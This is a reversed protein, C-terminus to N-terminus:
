FLYWCSWLGCVHPCGRSVEILYADDFGTEPTVITSDTTFESLDASYVRQIKEPVAALPTFAALTGDPHYHEQYFEPVYVGPLDRAAELLFQRRDAAPDFRAFFPPLLTEAEGLLFCDIFAAIPEPNLFCSVGGALVLPLPLSAGRCTAPLPLGAKRLVTLVNAYDNEFSISFALADFERLPRGSELSVLSAADNEGDPLFARECVLHALANLQRYVTQFGLSAMGVAYHNPYVLAVRVHGQWQKRITGVEADLRAKRQKDTTPTPAM